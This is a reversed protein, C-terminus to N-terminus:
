STVDMAGPQTVGAAILQANVESLLSEKESSTLEHFDEDIGVVAISCNESTLPTASSAEAITKVSISKSLANVAHRILDDRSANEFGEFHKELYTKTSQSRDGLAYAFYEYM